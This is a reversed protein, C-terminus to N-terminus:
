AGAGVAAPAAAGPQFPCAPDEGLPDGSDAFARARSGGCLDAYECRGCRGSFETARIQKLLANDRYIEALPTTCVNGLGLPLFGAPYVEGDYAVFVIGKGDRTSATQARPLGAPPGMLTELRASLARYRESAPAPDGARRRAVVRRFFPAEVTRVIFGHQSADFLFHCIDEHEAPTVAETSVGRGVQVLFFVEWIAAGAKKILAAVDALEGVNARMVTTNVQVTLGAAALARIARVTDDFHGPIGRVGEHTAAVAGDLSISVAKVGSAVIRDIMLPTLTPTVSPSLATPLGLGTAYDVLEFLDPRMLCDGGTLVLIPYPRGFGAVQDILDRGQATTLEGPLAQMDASARCHKCALACARTTEWFVLMPRKAYDPGKGRRAAPVAPLVATEGLPISLGSM